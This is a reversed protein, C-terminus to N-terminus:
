LFGAMTLENDSCVGLVKFLEGMQGRDSLRNYGTILADRQKVDARDLLIQLRVDGGVHQLFAGQTTIHTQLQQDSFASAVDDFAVHATIDAEGVAQLPSWFGHKKIAQLTNGRSEGRYGYDIILGAGGYEAMHSALQSAIQRSAPSSEIIIGDSSADPAFHGGGKVLKIGMPQVKFALAGTEEDITVVRECLGQPTKVYQRIPLADFFENAILLIPLEPLEEINQQWSMRPHHTGVMARQYRRLLPSSEVMVIVLSEHFGAVHRTARLADAMLTGRGPGLEVLVMDRQGLMQWMAALWTGVMEGFIQSIEPATTFDGQEGFPDRTMYYGYTEHGLALEMFEAVTLAGRAAIRERIITELPSYPSPQM